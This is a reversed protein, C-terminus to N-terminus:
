PTITLTVSDSYSGVSADVYDAEAVSAAIDMTVPASKGAGTGSTTYTFSYPIYEALTAHKMRYAGGSDNAGLDDTIAYSAGKTCWFAPQSLTGNVAGGTAPNLTFAVSGTATSYKCVGTVSASVGVVADAAAASTAFAAVAIMALLQKTKM